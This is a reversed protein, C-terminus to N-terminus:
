QGDLTTKMSIIQSFTTEISQDEKFLSARLIIAFEPWDGEQSLGEFVGRWRTSCQQSNPVFDSFLAYMELQPTEKVDRLNECHLQYVLKSFTALPATANLFCYTVKISLFLLM